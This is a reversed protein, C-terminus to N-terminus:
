RKYVANASHPSKLCRPRCLVGLLQPKSLTTTTIATNISDIANSFAIAASFVPIETPTMASGTSPMDSALMSVENREKIETSGVATEDTGHSKVDVDDEDDVKFKASEFARKATNYNVFLRYRGPELEPWYTFTFRTSQIFHFVYNRAANLSPFITPWSIHCLLRQM